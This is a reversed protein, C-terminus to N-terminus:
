APELWWDIANEYGFIRETKRYYEFENIVATPKDLEYLWLEFENTSTTASLLVTSEVTKPIYEDDWLKRVKERTLM